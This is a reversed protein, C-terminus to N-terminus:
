ADIEPPVPAVGLAIRHAVCFCSRDTIPELDPALAMPQTCDRVICEGRDARKRRDIEIDPYGAVAVYRPPRTM